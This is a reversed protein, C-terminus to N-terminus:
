CSCLCSAPSSASLGVLASFLMLSCSHDWILALYAQGPLPCQVLSHAFIWHLHAPVLLCLYTPILMFSHTPPHTHTPAPVHICSPCSCTSPPSCVFASLFPSHLCPHTCHCCCCCSCCHCCLLLLPLMLLLLLLIVGSPVVILTICVVTAHVYACGQCCHCSHSQPCSVLAQCSPKM